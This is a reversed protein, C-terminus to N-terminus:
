KKLDRVEKKKNQRIKEVIKASLVLPIGGPILLMLFVLIRKKTINKKLNEWNTM